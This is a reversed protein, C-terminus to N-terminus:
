QLPIGDGALGALVGIRLRKSMLSHEHEQKRDCRHTYGQKKLRDLKNPDRIPLTSTYIKVKQVRRGIRDYVPQPAVPDQPPDFRATVNSEEGFPRLTLADARQRLHGCPALM